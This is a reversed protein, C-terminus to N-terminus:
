ESNEIIRDIIKNVRAAQFFNLEPLVREHICRIFAQDEKTYEPEALLFPVSTDFSQKYSTAATGSGLGGSGHLELKVFDDTVAITGGQGHIEVLLEPLRYEPVSWCADMYGKLGSEFSMIAHVYDDVESSYLRRGVASVRQPEGFLWLLMDLLHPALDLLVGGTGKRYRWSKARRLVDSSFIYSRFFMLDGISHKEILEKAHRFVPSFRKQFGVMHIGRMKAAIECALRAQDGSAALPKEVFLSLRPDERVLDEAVKIHSEIPTTVFVADLEENKVMKVHDKYVNTTKPVLNKALERLLSEKECIAKVHTGPLSNVIGGHLVGM